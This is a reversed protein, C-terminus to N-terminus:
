RRTGMAYILSSYMFTDPASLHALFEAVFRDYVLESPFEPLVSDRVVEFKQRWNSMAAEPAAGAYVHYPVIQVGVDAFGAERLYGFLKRGAYPDFSSGLGRFLAQLGADLSASMPHLFLAHGDCDGVVIRGGPKLTSALSRVARVPEPLYELVFRSWVLDFEEGFPPHFLDGEVFELNAHHTSRAAIAVGAALRDGSRDFCVVSGAPGVAESIVRSVAGTGGGADLVRQGQCVGVLNLHRRTEDPDTKDELREAERPDEMLYSSRRPLPNVDTSM